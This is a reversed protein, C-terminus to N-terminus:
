LSILNKDFPTSKLVVMPELPLAEQPLAEVVVEQLLAPLGQPEGTVGMSLRVEVALATAQVAVVVTYPLVVMPRVAAAAAAAATDVTEATSAAMLEVEAVGIVLRRILLAGTLVVAQVLLVEVLMEERM